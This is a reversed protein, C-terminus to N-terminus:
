CSRSFAFIRRVVVRRALGDSHGYRNTSTSFSLHSESAKQGEKSNGRGEGRLGRGNTSEALINDGVTRSVAVTPCCNHHVSLGITLQLLGLVFFEVVDLVCIM